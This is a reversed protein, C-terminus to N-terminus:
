NLITTYMCYEDNLKSDKLDGVAIFFRFTVNFVVVPAM